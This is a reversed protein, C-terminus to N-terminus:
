SHHRSYRNQQHCTTLISPRLVTSGHLLGLVLRAAVLVNLCGRRGADFLM